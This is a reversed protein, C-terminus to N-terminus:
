QEKLFNYVIKKPKFKPSNNYGEWHVSLQEPIYESGDELVIVSNTSYGYIGNRRMANSIYNSDNGLSIDCWDIDLEFSDIEGKSLELSQPEEKKFMNKIKNFITVM